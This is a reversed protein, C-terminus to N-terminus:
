DSFCPIKLSLGIIICLGIRSIPNPQGENLGYMWYVLGGELAVNMASPLSVLGRRLESTHINTMYVLCLGLGM